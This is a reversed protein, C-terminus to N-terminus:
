FWPHLITDVKLGSSIFTVLMLRVKQRRITIRPEMSAFDVCLTGATYPESAFVRPRVTNSPSNVVSSIDPLMQMCAALM